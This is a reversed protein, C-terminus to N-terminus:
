VAANKPAPTSAMRAESMTRTILRSDPGRPGSTARAYLVQASNEGFEYIGASPQPNRKLRVRLRERIARNMKEWIGYIRWQRFYHYVTPWPPFDHPLLRWPCGSRL